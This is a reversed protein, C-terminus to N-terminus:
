SLFAGGYDEERRCECAFEDWLSPVPFPEGCGSCFLAFLGAWATLFIWRRLPNLNGYMYMLVRGRKRRVGRWLNIWWGRLGVQSRRVCSIRIRMSARLIGKKGLMSDCDILGGICSEFWALTASVDAKRLTSFM